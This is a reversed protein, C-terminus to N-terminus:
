YRVRCPIYIVKPKIDNSGDADTLAFGQLGIVPHPVTSNYTVDPLADADYEGLHGTLTIDATILEGANMTFTVNGRCGLLQRKNGDQHIVVTVSKHAFGDDAVKEGSTPTYVVDVGDSAAEHLGCAQLAAGIEPAKGLAGSGKVECTFQVQQLTGGFVQQFPTLTKKIAPREIMRANANTLSLSNVLLPTLETAATGTTTEVGIQIVQRSVLM